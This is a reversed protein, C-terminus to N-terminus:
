IIVFIARLKWDSGANGMNWIGVLNCWNRILLKQGKSIKHLCVLACVSAALVIGAWLMRAPLGYCFISSDFISFYCLCKFAERLALFLVFCHNNNPRIYKRRVFEIVFQLYTEIVSRSSLSANLGRFNQYTQLYLYSVAILQQGCLAAHQVAMLLDILYLPRGVSKSVCRRRRHQSQSLRKYGRM